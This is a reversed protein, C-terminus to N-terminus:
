QQVVKCACWVALCLAWHMGYLTKWVWQPPEPAVGYVRNTEALSRAGTALLWILNAPLSGMAATSSISQSFLYLAVCAPGAHLCCIDGARCLVLFITQESFTLFKTSLWLPATRQVPNVLWVKICAKFCYPIMVQTSYWGLVMAMGCCCVIGELLPVRGQSILALVFLAWWANTFPMQLFGCLACLINAFVIEKPLVLCALWTLCVAGHSGYVWYWASKPLMPNVRYVANTTELKFHLQSIDGAQMMNLHVGCLWITSLPLAFAVAAPTVVGAQWELGTSIWPGYWYLMAAAPFAHVFLDWVQWMLLVLKADGIAPQAVRSGGWLASMAHPHFYRLGYWGLLVTCSLVTSVGLLFGTETMLALVLVLWWTVSFPLRAYGTFAVIALAAVVQWWSCPCLLDGTPLRRFGALVPLVVAPLRSKWLPLFAKEPLENTSMEM